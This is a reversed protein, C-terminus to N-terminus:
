LSAKAKTLDPIRITKGVPLDFGFEIDNAFMIIWYWKSDGYAQYAINWLDDDNKVTYYRDKPSTNIKALVGDLLYDGEDFVFIEGISYPNNERLPQNLNDLPASTIEAM